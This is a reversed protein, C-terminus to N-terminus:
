SLFRRYNNTKKTTKKVYFFANFRQSYINSDHHM